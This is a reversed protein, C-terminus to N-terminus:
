GEAIGGRSVRGDNIDATAEDIASMTEDDSLINLSEILSEYEDISLMVAVPKGHRTIVWETGTTAVDDVIDAIKDRVETVPATNM